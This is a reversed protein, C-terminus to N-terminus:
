TKSEGAEELKLYELGFGFYFYVNGHPDLQHCYGTPEDQRGCPIGCIYCPAAHVPRPTFTLGTGGTSGLGGHTERRM